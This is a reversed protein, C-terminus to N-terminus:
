MADMEGTSSSGTIDGVVAAALSANNADRANAHGGGTSCEPCGACFFLGTV